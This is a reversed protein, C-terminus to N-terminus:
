LYKSDGKIFSKVNYNTFKNEWGTGDIILTINENQLNYNTRLNDIARQMALKTAELINIQDIEKPEAYGVGWAKVNQKIWELAIKRKKASLKKSDNIIPNDLTDKGWIVAGAYVRGILPGRGAEDIGIELDTDLYYKEM